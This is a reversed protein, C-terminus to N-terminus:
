QHLTVIRVNPLALVELAHACEDDMALIHLTYDLHLQQLSEHLAMGLVLYNKDFLTCYHRM